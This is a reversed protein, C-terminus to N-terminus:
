IAGASVTLSLARGASIPPFTQVARLPTVSLLFRLQTATQSSKTSIKSFCVRPSPSVGDWTDKTTYTVNLYGVFYMDYQGAYVYTGDLTKWWGSNPQVDRYVSSHAYANIDSGEPIVLKGDEVLYDKGYVYEKNLYSNRVSVVRDIDYLTKEPAITGDEEEIVMFSENFVIGGNWYYEAYREVDYCDLDLYEEEYAALTGNALSDLDLSYGSDATKDFLYISYVDSPTFYIYSGEGDVISEWAEFKHGATLTYAAWYNDNEIEIELTDDAATAPLWMSLANEIGTFRVTVTEGAANPTIKYSSLYSDYEVVAGEASIMDETITKFEAADEAAAPIVLGSVAILAALIFSLIKKM